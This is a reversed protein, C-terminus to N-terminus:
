AKKGIKYMVGKGDVLYHTKGHTIINCVVLGRAEIWRFALKMKITEIREIVMERWLLKIM